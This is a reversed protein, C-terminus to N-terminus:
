KGYRTISLVFRDKKTRGLLENIKLRGIGRITIIDDIKVNKSVNSEISWNIFVKEGKILDATKGRSLNFVASLVADLRLSSVTINKQLGSKTNLVEFNDTIKAKVKVKGVQELNYCIFDAVSSETFVYAGNEVCVIDGLKDRVIGLGILSGLFDRHSLKQGFRSNYSIYIVTIPFDEKEIQEYDPAFGIMKREADDFGGFIMYNILIKDKTLRLFESIKYPDSFEVFKKEFGKLCCYAQDLAKALFLKDDPKSVNELISRKDFVM